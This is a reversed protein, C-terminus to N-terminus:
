NKASAAQQPAGPIPMPHEEIQAEMGPRLQQIAGVAVLEEPKLGSEIVRLGDDELPGTQVRRYRVKKEADLVYVYKLGQDSGVARDIVLLAPHPAGVPLQVRTFMGPALLRAGNKLKPNAFVSTPSVGPGSRVRNGVWVTAAVCSPVM